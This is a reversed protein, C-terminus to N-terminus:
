ITISHSTAQSLSAFLHTKCRKKFINLSPSDTIFKTLSNWQKAGYIKISFQRVKIRCPLIHIKSIQRTFHNHIDSNLTFLSHFQVPLLQNLAKYVFCSLQLKNIEYVPLLKLRYFIPKTHANWKSFTIVRVAKKQKRYLNTLASSSESAWVINCYEIYPQILTRYLMLLTDSHLTKRIKLLIGLSKSIKNSLTKLHDKWSLHENLIVGLFKTKDVRIILVNDIKIKLDGYNHSNKAKSPKFLIYNTKKINLSLKNLKFWVSIRSLEENIVNELKDLDKHKFFLNTDDAFMIFNAIKSSNVIDNIYIIFLLPGLISGQPVGCKINLLESDTNDVNVYQTRNSLYSKLWDLATGRIGYRHLKILLLNHDITDFAKSLDIFIGVSHNKVDMHESIEDVLKLLAMFTSHQKRFGYQNKVLINNIDLYNLLRNYM